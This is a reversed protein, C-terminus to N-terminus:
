GAPIGRKKNLYEVRDRFLAINVIFDSFKRLLSSYRNSPVIIKLLKNQNILYEILCYFDGDSSVIIAKDYNQYEIMAHLVLDADVNGKIKKVKSDQIELTPKFICIYGQEQFNKYITENGAIYGIFLFAKGVGYKDRLFIRFKSYDLRWGQNKVGLYLNNGDIFAYNDKSKM